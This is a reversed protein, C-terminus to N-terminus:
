YKEIIIILVLKNIICLLLDCLKKDLQRNRRTTKHTEFYSTHTHTHAHAHAHTHTHTHTHTHKNQISCKTMTGM